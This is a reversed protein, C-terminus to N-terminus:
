AFLDKVNREGYTWRVKGTEDNLVASPFSKNIWM